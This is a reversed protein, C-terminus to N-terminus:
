PCAKAGGATRTKKGPCLEGSSSSEQISGPILPRAIIGTARIGSLVSVDGMGKMRDRRM